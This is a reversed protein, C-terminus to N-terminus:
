NSSNSVVEVGGDRKLHWHFTHKRNIFKGIKVGVNHEGQRVRIYLPPKYNTIIVRKAQRTLKNGQTIRVIILTAHENHSWWFIGNDYAEQKYLSEQRLRYTSRVQRHNSIRIQDTKIGGVYLQMYKGDTVLIRTSDPSLKYRFATNGNFPDIIVSTGDQYTIHLKGSKTKTMTDVTIHADPDVPPTTDEVPTDIVTVTNGVVVLDNYIIDTSSVEYALTVEMDPDVNTDTVAAITVTQPTSWNDPTFILTTPDISVETGDTIIVMVDGTPQSDLVVTYTASDGGETLTIGGTPATITLGATPLVTATDNDTNIVSVNDPNLNNYNTDSSTTADLIISYTINGDDVEDDVGTVTVTQPVSWNLATFTLTAASVTGETTDSSSLPMTMDATPESTLVVTFTATTGSESTNGSITGVTIGATDNDTVNATVDAVTIGTYNGDSSTAVHTITATEPSTEDLSDNAATVTINQSTSWNASTFVLPDSVSVDANGTATITVNATPETNLVVAYTDTAGGETVGTSGSTETITVGATDNDTNTVSVDAPNIADYVSDLTNGANVTVLSQYSINGDDVDDNVGTVTVTQPTAWNVSTFTLTSGTTVTGETSDNSTSDVEVNGTPQTNLVVTYTATGNAETTNGSIAGVTVGAVDNDTITFTHETNAGLTANTPASLTVIITENDDDIQDNVITPSITTSTNGATITATGSALTYDTGSGTATGGTVAYNVTVDQFHAPSLSITITPAATAESGSSTTASFEVTRVATDVVFAVLGGGRAVVYASSNSASDIALVQWYYNGDALASSTYSTAGQAGLASTYDVEPSAFTNNNDIQIHYGVTDYANTDTITFELTPTNDGTTSGNIFGAPGLSAPLNPDNNASNLTITDIQALAPGLLFAKVKLSGASLSVINLRLVTLSNRNADSSVATWSSGDFYKWTTGNDNSVQYEAGDIDSPGYTVTISDISDFKKAVNTAISSTAYLLASTSSGIAVTPETAAYQRDRIWDWYAEYAQGTFSNDYREGLVIPESSVANSINPVSLYSTAPTSYNVVSIDVKSSPKATITTLLTTAAPYTGGIASWGGDNRYYVTGPERMLGIGNSVSLYFGAPTFGNGPASIYRSKMELITDNSFTAISTLRGTTSTGKLEGGTVTFGTGDTVTWIGTDVAVGSFDDFFVFTNAGSSTTMAAANGYFMTIDTDGSAALSDVKVWVEISSTGPSCTEIWYSLVNGSGRRFRLDSCDANVSAFSAFNGATLTVKVQFNTLLSNANTITLTRKYLWAAFDSDPVTPVGTAYGGSVSIEADNYTYDGATSFDWTSASAGSDTFWCYTNGGNTSNTNTVDSGLCANSDSVTVYNVNFTGNAALGTLQGGTTSGIIVNHGSTGTLTLLGSVTQITGATINVTKDSTTVSLNNFTNTGSIISTGTTDLVVLGTRGNFTGSNSWNGAVTVQHNTASVDFTGATVTLNGNVDLAQGLQFIDTAGDTSNITLHHYNPTLSTITYTDAASDGDGTYTVTSGSSLTPATVTESGRLKLTGGDQVTFTGGCTFNFSGLSFTGEVVDCTGTSHTLNTTLQAEGSAKNIKFSGPNFTNAANQAITQTGTGNLEVTLNAGSFADTTSMSFNGGVYLTYASAPNGIEGDTRTFNGTITINSGFTTVGGTRNFTVNGPLSTTSLTTTPTSDFIFTPTGGSATITGSNAFTSSITMDIAGLQLTKESSITATGDIHLSTANRFDNTTGGFTAAGNVQFTGVGATFSGLNNISNIAINGTTVLTGGAQIVLYVDSTQSATITQDTLVTFSNSAGVGIVITAGTATNLNVPVSYSTGTIYSNGGAWRGMTLTRGSIDFTGNNTFIQMIQINTVAANVTLTDGTGVTLNGRIDFSTVANLNNTAGDFTAHGNVQFTGAGATFSGSNSLTGMNVNGTSTFTAGAEVTIGGDSQLFSATLTQGNPVTHNSAGTNIAVVLGEADTNFNGTHVISNGGCAWCGTILTRGSGHLTGGSFTFTNQVTWTGSTPTFTGGSLTFTSNLDLFSTDGAYVGGAQTWAGNVTLTRAQTITGTFGALINVGAVTGSFGAGSDITSSTDSVAPDFTVVDGGGPCANSDWNTCTSWLGDGGGNDWTRTVAYVPRGFVDPFMISATVDFMTVCSVLLVSYTLTRLRMQRKYLAHQTYSAAYGQDTLDYFTQFSKQVPYFLLVLVHYFGLWIHLFLLVIKSIFSQQSKKSHLTIQKKIFM